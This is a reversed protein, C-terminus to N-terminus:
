RPTQTYLIQVFVTGATVASVTPTIQVYVPIPTSSAGLNMMALLQANTFTPRVRVVPGTMLNLSSVFDTGSPTLGCTLNVATPGVFATPVDIIIDSIQALSPFYQTATVATTGNWATAEVYNYMSWNQGDSDQFTTINAPITFAFDQELHVDGLNSTVGNKYDGAQIPGSFTSKM